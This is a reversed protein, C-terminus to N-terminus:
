RVITSHGGSHTNHCDLGNYTATITHGDASITANGSFSGGCGSQMIMTWTGVSFGTLSATLAGFHVGDGTDWTGTVSSGLQSMVVTVGSSATGGSALNVVFTGIWTGDLSGPGDLCGPSLYQDGGLTPQVTVTDRGLVQGNADTAYVLVGYGVPDLPLTYEQVEDTVLHGRTELPLLQGAPAVQSAIATAGPVLRCSTADIILDGSDFLGELQAAQYHPDSFYRQLVELDSVPTSGFPGGVVATAAREVRGSGNFDARAYVAEAAPPDVSADQNLDRKPDTSPGDLDLLPSAEVQLVADRFRRFDAMDVLGDGRLDQSVQQGLADIRQNGDLTGDDLDVLQKLVSDGLAAVAGFADIRPAGGSVPIATQLLLDLVPNATLTPAPLSPDLAYLYAILGTVEPAAMSTGSKLAFADGLVTSMIGSGPAGLHGGLNTFGSLVVAGSGALSDSEVVIIPGAGLVVGAYTLPSGFEAPTGNDNGAAAVIIPLAAGTGALLTLTQLVLAGDDAAQQQAVTNTSADIGGGLWDYGMSVNIVQLTPDARLLDGIGFVLTQLTTSLGPEAGVVLDAYRSWGDVGLGNDFGAAIIGAVHTGHDSSVSPSLNQQYHLDVHSAAFGVDLVGVRVRHGTANAAEDLNWAQPARSAELGWNGGAAPFDWTWLLAPLTAPSPTVAPHLAMDRVVMQVRPDQRLRALVPAAAAHSAIPLRAVLIGPVGTTGPIGGAVEAGVDELIANAQAVTTGAAFVLAVTNFSVSAGALGPADTAFDQPRATYHSDPIATAVPANGPGPLPGGGGAGAGTPEGSCGILLLCVLGSGRGIRSLFAPM